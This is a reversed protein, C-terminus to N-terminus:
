PSAARTFVGLGDTNYHELTLKGAAFEARSLSGSPANDNSPVFTFTDGSWHRLPIVTQGKPGLRLELGGRAALAVTAVGFYDNRYSGVYVQLPQAPDPPEPRTERVLTGMPKFAGEYMASYLGLWDQRAGGFQVWDMFQASLAEPVGTPVTNTLVVIGVNASPIVSFNTAAGWGYAGNHSLVTRGADSVQINFGYGYFSNRTDASSARQSMNQPTIAPYLAAAPLLRSGPGSGKGTAVGLVFSMWKAMDNASSTVGGTPAAGDAGYALWYQGGGPPREAGPVVKGNEVVHSLARNPRARFDAFRSSTSRMGLPGYLVQESLDAWDAGALTAVGVAAASMGYNTYAYSNRFPALPFKVMRRFIEERSYGVEELLDGAHDPLGSRHAYLDGVTLNETVYPDSLTFWPLLERVRTDWSVRGLGVLRAIVTAGIPKSVSAVPFVTDADVPQASGLARVGFGKAYLVRDGQVVAIAMGPISHRKMAEAAMGDLQQVAREIQAQPVPGLPDPALEQAAASIATCASLLVL